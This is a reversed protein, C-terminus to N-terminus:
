IGKLSYFFLNLNNLLVLVYLVTIFLTLTKYEKISRKVSYVMVILSLLHLVLFMAQYLEM